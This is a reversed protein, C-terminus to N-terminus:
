FPRNYKLRNTIYQIQEKTVCLKTRLGASWCNGSSAPKRKRGQM